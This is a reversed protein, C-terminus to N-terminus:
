WCRACRGPDGVGDLARGGCAIDRVLELGKQSRALFSLPRLTDNVM